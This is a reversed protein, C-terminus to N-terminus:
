FTRGKNIILTNIYTHLLLPVTTRITAYTVGTAGFIVLDFEREGKKEVKIETAATAATHVETGRSKKNRKKLGLASLSATCLYFMGQYVVTVPLLVVVWIPLVILTNLLFLPIVEYGSLELRKNDKIMPDSEGTSDMDTYSARNQNTPKDKKNSPLLPKNMENSEGM